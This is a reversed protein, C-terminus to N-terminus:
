RPRQLQLSDQLQGEHNPRLASIEVRTQRPEAQLEARLKNPEGRADESILKGLYQRTGVPRTVM